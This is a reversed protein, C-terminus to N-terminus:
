ASKPSPRASYKIQLTTLEKLPMKELQSDRMTGGSKQNPQPSPITMILPSHCIFQFNRKFDTTM